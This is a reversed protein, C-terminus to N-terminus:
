MSILVWLFVLVLARHSCLPLTGGPGGPSISSSSLLYLLAALGPLDWLSVLAWRRLLGAVM